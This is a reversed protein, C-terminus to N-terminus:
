YFKFYPDGTIERLATNITVREIVREIIEDSECLYYKYMGWADEDISIGLGRPIDETNIGKVSDFGFDYWGDPTSYNGTCVAKYKLTKALPGHTDEDKVHHLYYTKGVQFDKLEIEIM